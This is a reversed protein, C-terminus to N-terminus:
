ASGASTTVNATLTAGGVSLQVIAHNFPYSVDLDITLIYTDQQGPLISPQLAILTADNIQGGLTQTALETKMVQFLNTVETTLRSQMISNVNTIGRFPDLTEQLRYLINDVNRTLMEERQNIDTSLGTTVANRTYVGGVSTPPGNLNQSIICTGAAAMSDLQSRSFKSTTRSVDDYGILAMGAIGQQPLVGSILGALAACLFYGEQLTGANAIQDPWVASIRRDGWSLSRNCIETSEQAASLNRWIEFKAAVSIPASPGALLHLQDESTVTGVVYESYLTNGFGDSTYSVRVIDGAAVLNTLFKANGSTTRLITYQLGVASPDDEVVGLAVLGDSTTATTHGPVSSSAAVIPIEPVGDLSLWLRRWAGQEVASLSKVHDAYANLVVANRTLPVLDYVNSRGELISLVNGWSTTSDPDAVATFKVEQGNANDLAAKVGWKLPNDPDLAGPIATDITTPDDITYVSAILDTLWYRVEVFLQGYVLTSESVVNLLAQVGEDTWSPDYTTLGSEVTIGTATAEWNTDPPSSVNNMPIQLLPTLIYLTLDLESGVVIATNLNHGLQIVKLAGDATGTAAVYYRDGKCLATHSFAVTVGYGGVVTQTATATVNTPGSIDFGNTTAVTIQPKTASTFAGGRTVTVIYTTDTAGTYTGASTPAPATFAQHVVVQWRQGVSLDDPPVDDAIASLSHGASSSHNLTIKLGRTGIATPSGAVSPTVSAVDDTGSGSIVRLTALTYNHLASAQTVIIDYTESIHGVPTGDYLSGDATITVCNIPGSVYSAVASASQTASNSADSTAAAIVGAVAEAILATVYSWLVFPNGSVDLGRVKVVDNVQVDRDLFADDRDFNTTTAFVVGGHIRNNFGSLKTIDAGGGITKIFYPLLADQMWLKTYTPDVIADAPKDPWTYVTDLLNDYYGLLGNVRESVEVYRILQAHGGAIHARMPFPLNITTM